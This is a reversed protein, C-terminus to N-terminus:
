GEEAIKNAHQQILHLDKVTATGSETMNLASFDDNMWGFKTMKDFDQPCAVYALHAKHVEEGVKATIPRGVQCTEDVFCWRSKCWVGKWTNTSFLYTVHDWSWMLNCWKESYSHCQHYLESPPDQDRVIDLLLSWATPQPPETLCQCPEWQCGNAMSGGGAYVFDERWACGPTSACDEVSHQTACAFAASRAADESMPPPATTQPELDTGCEGPTGLCFEMDPKETEKTEDDSQEAVDADPNTQGDSEAEGDGDHDGTSGSGAEQGRRLLDAARYELISAAAAGLNLGFVAPCDLLWWAALAATRM